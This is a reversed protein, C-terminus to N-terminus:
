QNGLFDVLDFLFAQAQRPTMNDIDAESIKKITEMHIKSFGKHDNGSDDRGDMHTSNKATEEASTGEINSGMDGSHDVNDGVGGDVALSEPQANPNSSFLPMYDHSLNKLTEQLQNNQIISLVDQARAIVDSPLGARKAVQIGYSKKAEGAKVKHLFEINDKTEKVSMTMAKMTAHCKVLEILEHYHTAFLTRCAMRDFFEIAAWAISLGDFTSTGRGLEDLIVLSQPTVHHMISATETMEVMFTSLGQALHDSAGVRSFIRDVLGIEAHDAPVFLGSQAMLVLLANQRLYTSKGGMNPGTMLMLHENKKGQDDCLYTDNSVFFEHQKKLLGEIVPHRGNKIIFRHPYPDHHDCIKPRVYKNKVSMLAHTVMLDTKAIWRAVDQLVSAVGCVMVCLDMWIQREIISLSTGASNIEIEANQLRQCTFRMHNAMSQRHMFHEKWAPTLLPEGDKKNVEIYYGLMNNHKIKLNAIQTENRFDRELGAIYLKTNQIFDRKKDLDQNYGDQIFGPQLLHPAYPEKIARQIHDHIDSLAKQNEDHFWSSIDNIYAPLAGIGVEDLLPAIQLFMELADKIAGLDRPTASKMQIRTLAREIDPFHQLFAQIQSSLDQNKVFFEITDHRQQIEAKDYLPYRLYQALLRSGMPTKTTKLCDYLSNKTRGDSAIFVELHRLSHQDLHMLKQSQQLKPLPLIFDNEKYTNKLFQTLTFITKYVTKQIDKDRKVDIKKHQIHPADVAGKTHFVCDDLIFDINKIDYLDQCAAKFDISQYDTSSSILINHDTAMKKLRPYFGDRCLILEKPKIKVLFDHIGTDDSNSWDLLQFWFNQTSLDIWAAMMHPHPCQQNVVIIALYQSADGQLYDEEILTGPSLTRVVERNVLATGKGTRKKAEEPTETQECISVKFGEDILKAIYQQASHYPVGCMPVPMDSVTGRRTLALKLVNSVILADDFFLEYFDGLRFFLLTEPNEKKLSAYQKMMPTLQDHKIKSFDAFEKFHDQNQMQHKSIATMIIWIGRLRIGSAKSATFVMM